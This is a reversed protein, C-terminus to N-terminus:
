LLHLVRMDQLVEHWIHHLQYKGLNRNLSPDNVRNFMSEKITRTFGQSERDVISFNDSTINDGTTQFHDFIPSPPRLHEKYREGFCRGTEEIYEMNCSPQDCRYMYIVEGKQIINDKDKPAVLLEKATNAGKFHAQVGAKSCTELVRM